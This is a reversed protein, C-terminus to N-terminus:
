FNKLTWKKNNAVISKISPLSIAPGLASIKDNKCPVYRILVRLQRQLIFYVVTVCSAGEINKCERQKKSKRHGSQGKKRSILDRRIVVM